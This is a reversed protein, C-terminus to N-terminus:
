APEGVCEVEITRPSLGREIQALFSGLKDALDTYPSLKQAVESTVSPMNVANKTACTSLYAVVQEVIELAVRVQAETTSAGLQLTVICREHKLIPLDAPPPEVEFVDLAVGGIHGSELGRLVADLDFIGGRAANILLVGKRLKEVVGADILGRTEPTLPTHVTIADARQWLGALPVLEVGLAAARDASLVPDFGIVHMGIG